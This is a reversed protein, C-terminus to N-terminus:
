KIRSLAFFVPRFGDTCCFVGKDETLSSRGGYRLTTVAKCLDDWAWHCFGEPMVGSEEVIFEQGEKFLSCAEMAKGMPPNDGFIQKSDTMKLVTIKLKSREAMNDGGNSREV